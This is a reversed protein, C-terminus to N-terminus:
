GHWFSGHGGSPLGYLWPGYQQGGSLAMAKGGGRAPKGLLKQVPLSHGQIPVGGFGHAAARRHRANNKNKGRGIIVCMCFIQASKISSTIQPQGAKCCDASCQALVGYTVPQGSQGCIHAMHKNM